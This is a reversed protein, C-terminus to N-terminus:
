GQDGAAPVGDRAVVGDLVAVRGGVVVDGVLNVGFHYPLETRSEAVLVSFDCLKGVELSGVDNRRLAAAGGVTAAYLAEDPTLKM